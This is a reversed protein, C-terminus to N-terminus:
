APAAPVVATWAAHTPIGATMVAATGFWTACAPASAAAPHASTTSALSTAAVHRASRSSWARHASILARPRASTSPCPAFRTASATRSRMAARAAQHRSDGDDLSSAPRRPKRSLHEGWQLATWHERVDDLPDRAGRQDVPHHDRRRIQCAVVLHSRKGCGVARSHGATGLVVDQRPVHHGGPLVAGVDHNADGRVAGEGVRVHDVPDDGRAGLAIGVVRAVHLRRGEGLTVVDLREGCCAQEADVALRGKYIFALVHRHPNALVEILVLDHMDRM